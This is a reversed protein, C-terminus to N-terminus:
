ITNSDKAKLITSASEKISLSPKVGPKNNSSSSNSGKNDALNAAKPGTKSKPSAVKTINAAIFDKKVSSVVFPVVLDPHHLQFCKVLAIPISSSEFEINIRTHYRDNFRLSKDDPFRIESLDQIKATTAKSDFTCHIFCVSDSSYSLNYMGQDIFSTAHSPRIHM